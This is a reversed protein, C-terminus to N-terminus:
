AVSAVPPARRRPRHVVGVRPDVAPEHLGVPPPKHTTGASLTIIRTGDAIEMARDLRARVWATPRGAPDIGGGPVLVADVTM